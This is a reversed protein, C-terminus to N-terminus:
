RTRVSGAKDRHQMIPILPSRSTTAASPSGSLCAAPPLIPTPLSPGAKKALRSPISRVPARETGLLVNGEPNFSVEAPEAAAGSPLAQTSGELRVMPRGEPVIRFGTINPSDGSNLVYLLDHSLTLSIPRTGGSSITQVLSLEDGSVSFASISNSGANVAFLMRNDASLILPGQSGLPNTGSGAGSGGTPFRGAREIAGDANRHFVIVANEDSQNSLVYVDGTSQAALRTGPMFGLLAFAVVTSCMGFLEVVSKGSFM